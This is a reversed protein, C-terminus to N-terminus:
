SYQLIESFQPIKELECRIADYARSHPMDIHIRPKKNINFGWLATDEMEMENTDTLVILGRSGPLFYAQAVGKKPDYDLPVMRPNPVGGISPGIRKRSKERNIDVGFFQIATIIDEGLNDLASGVIEVKDTIEM